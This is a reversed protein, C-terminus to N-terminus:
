KGRLMGGMEKEVFARAERIQAKLAEREAYVKKLEAYINDRDKCAQAYKERLEEYERPCVNSVPRPKYSPVYTINLRRKKM